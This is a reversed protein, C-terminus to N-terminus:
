VPSTVPAVARVIAAPATSMAISDAVPVGPLPLKKRPSLEQDATSPKGDCDLLLPLNRVVFPDAAEQATSSM